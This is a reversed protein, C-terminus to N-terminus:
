AFVGEGVAEGASMIANCRWRRIAARAARARRADDGEARDSVPLHAHRRHREMLKLALSPTSAARALRRDHPRLVAHAAARGDPRRDLGLRGPSWFPGDGEFWNQSRRLRQLNGILARHPIVAGKAPGTTGSTYILLAPDDARTDTPRSRPARRPWRAAGRRRRRASDAAGGGMVRACRPAPRACRARDRRGLGRRRHGGERRQRQLRSQLAEAGFLVSLPVAIAGMQFVAMLAVATQPRQPMVIAVRDGRTVGLSGLANSLRRADRQLAAYTFPVAPRRRRGPPDRGGRADRAGLPAPLDRRHQLARAGVLPIPTCTAYHDQSSM